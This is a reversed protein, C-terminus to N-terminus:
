KARLVSLQWVSTAKVVGNDLEPRKSWPFVIWCPGKDRVSMPEGDAECAVFAEWAVADAVNIPAEYDNLAIAQVAESTVGAHDLIRKLPVGGFEIPKATWPTTTTMTEWGLAKLGPVGLVVVENQRPLEVKLDFPNARGSSPFCSITLILTLVVRYLVSKTM